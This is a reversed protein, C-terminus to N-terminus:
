HSSGNPASSIQLNQAGRNWVVIMDHSTHGAKSRSWANNKVTLVPRGTTDDFLVGVGHRSKESGFFITLLIGGLLLLAILMIILDDKKMSNKRIHTKLWYCWPFNIFRPKRTNESMRRNLSTLTLINVPCRLVKLIMRLNLHKSMIDSLLPTMYCSEELSFM